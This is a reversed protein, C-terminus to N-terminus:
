TLQKMIINGICMSKPNDHHEDGESSGDDFKRPQKHLRPLHPEDIGLSVVIQNVKLWFLEFSEDSRVLKITEVTIKAVAQGETASFTKHQLTSSLSDAHKLLMEGLINGFPYNFNSIVVSVGDIRGKTETDHVVSVAKEWLTSLLNLLRMHTTDLADKM